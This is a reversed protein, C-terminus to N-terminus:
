WSFERRCIPIIVFQAAICRLAVNWKPSDKAAEQQVQPWHPTPKHGLGAM